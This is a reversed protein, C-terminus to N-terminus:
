SMLCNFVKEEKDLEAEVCGGSSDELFLGNCTLIHRIWRRKKVLIKNVLNLLISLANVPVSPVANYCAKTQTHEELSYTIMITLQWYCVHLNNETQCELSGLLQTRPLKGKFEAYTVRKTVVLHTNM